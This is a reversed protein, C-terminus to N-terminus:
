RGFPAMVNGGLGLGHCVEFIPGCWAELNFGSTGGFHLWRHRWFSAVQAELISVVQAEM